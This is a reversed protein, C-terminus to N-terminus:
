EVIPSHDSLSCPQKVVFHSVYSFIDQNCTAYDTVILGNRGHFTPRGLADGSVRGNLIKLDASKCIDLLRKGHSNFENDYSNRRRPRFSSDSLDNTTINHGDHCVSDSYKGTWLNFDGLLFISGKSSFNLIDKKLEEFIKPDFYNSTIPPIYLGCVYIDNTTKADHKSIDFWFFFKSINQCHFDLWSICKQM